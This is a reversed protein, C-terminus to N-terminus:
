ICNCKKSFEDKFKQFASFAFKTRADIKLKRFNRQAIVNYKELELPLELESELVLVAFAIMITKISNPDSIDIEHRITAPGAIYSSDYMDISQSNDIIIKNDFCKISGIQKLDTVGYNGHLIMYADNLNEAIDGNRKTLVQLGANTVLCLLIDHRRNM